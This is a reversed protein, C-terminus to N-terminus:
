KRAASDQRMGASAALAGVSSVCEKEKGRETASNLVKALANVDRGM